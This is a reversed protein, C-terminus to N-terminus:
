FLFTQKLIHCGNRMRLHLPTKYILVLCAINFCTNKHPLHTNILTAFTHKYSREVGKNICTERPDLCINFM